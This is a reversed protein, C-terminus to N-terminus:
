SEVYAFRGPFQLDKLQLRGFFSVVLVRVNLSCYYLSLFMFVRVRALVRSAQRRNLISLSSIGSGVVRSKDSALDVSSISILPQVFFNV